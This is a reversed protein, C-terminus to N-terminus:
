IKAPRSRAVRFPRREGDHETISVYEGETFKHSSFKFGSEDPEPENDLDYHFAWQRGQTHVLHGHEDPEGPSYRRVVCKKRHDRWNDPDLLGDGNLPAVFEYGHEPSGEPHETTRALELRIQYLM